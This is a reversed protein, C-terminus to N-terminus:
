TVEEKRWYAYYIGPTARKGIKGPDLDLMDWCSRILLYGAPLQPDLLDQLKQLVEQGANNPDFNGYKDGERIIETSQLKRWRYVKKKQAIAPIVSQASKAFALLSILGLLTRRTINM